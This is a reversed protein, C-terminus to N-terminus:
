GIMASLDSQYTSGENSNEVAEERYLAFAVALGFYAGFTHIVISGGMDSIQLYKFCLTENIAYFIVEFFAMIFLQLPSTKGLVAGFSILIAAACIDAGILRFCTMLTVFHYM